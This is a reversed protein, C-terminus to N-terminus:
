PLFVEVGAKHGKRQRQHKIRKQHRPTHTMCNQVANRRKKAAQGQSHHIGFTQGQANTGGHQHQHALLHKGGAGQAANRHNASEEKEIRSPHLVHAAM